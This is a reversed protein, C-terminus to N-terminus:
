SKYCIYWEPPINITLSVICAHPFPRHPFDRYREETKSQVKFQELVFLTKM